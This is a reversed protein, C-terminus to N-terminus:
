ILSAADIPSIVVEDEDMKQTQRKLSKIASYYMFVKDIQDLVDKSKSGEKLEKIIGEALGPTNLISLINSMYSISIEDELWDCFFSMRGDSDCVVKLEAAIEPLSNQKKQSSKDM